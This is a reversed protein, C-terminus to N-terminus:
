RSSQSMAPPTLLVVGLMALTITRLRMRSVRQRCIKKDPIIGCNEPLRHNVGQYPVVVRNDPVSVRFKHQRCFRRLCHFNPKYSNADSGEM